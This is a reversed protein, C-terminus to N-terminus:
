PMPKQSSIELIVLIVFTKASDPINATHISIM